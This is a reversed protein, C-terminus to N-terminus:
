TLDGLLSGISNTIYTSHGEQQQVFPMFFLICYVLSDLNAGGRMRLM